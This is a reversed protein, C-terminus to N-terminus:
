DKKLFGRALSVVEVGLNSYESIMSIAKEVYEEAKENDLDFEKRFYEVLEKKETEDLDKIEDVVDSSVSIVEIVEPLVKGLVFTDKWTIKGDKMANDYSDGLAVIADIVKRLAETGHEM